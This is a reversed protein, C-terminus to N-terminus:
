YFFARISTKIADRSTIDIATLFFNDVLFNRINTAAMEPAAPSFNEALVKEHVEQWFARYM